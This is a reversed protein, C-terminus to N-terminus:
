FLQSYFMVFGEIFAQFIPKPHQQEFEIRRIVRQIEHSSVQYIAASFLISILMIIM